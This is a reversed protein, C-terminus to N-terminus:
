LCDGLADPTPDPGPDPFPSPPPDGGLFLHMLLYVADTLNLDGSDDTDAADLCQPSVGGLFLYNLVAVADSIDVKQDTNADGRLFTAVSAILEFRVADAIVVDGGSAQNTLRVYGETGTQFPFTGLPNWTQGDAKQNVTFSEHGEAHVVTFSADTVRNTGAVYWLSVEYDGGVPLFPRFEAWATEQPQDSSFLYDGDHGGPSSGAAWPGSTTFGEDGDDVIVIVPGDAATQFAGPVSVTENGAADEAVVSYHYTTMPELGTLRVEHDFSLQEKRQVSGLAATTGYEVRGRCSEDTHWLVTTETALIGGTRVSSIVPPVADATGDKWPMPPTSEPEGYLSALQSLAQEDLTSCSFIAQGELGLERAASLQDGV